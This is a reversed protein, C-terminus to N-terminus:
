TVDGGIYADDTSQSFRGVTWWNHAFKVTGLVALITVAALAARKFAPKYNKKPTPLSTEANDGNLTFREHNTQGPPVIIAASLKVRSNEGNVAPQIVTNM